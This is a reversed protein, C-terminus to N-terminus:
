FWISTQNRKLTHYLVTLKPDILEILTQTFSSLSKPAHILELRSFMTVNMSESCDGPYGTPRDVQNNLAMGMTCRRQYTNIHSVHVWNSTKKQLHEYVRKKGLNRQKQCETLNKRVGLKFVSAM